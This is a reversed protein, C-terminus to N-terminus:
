SPATMARVRKFWETAMRMLSERHEILFSVHDGDAHYSTTIRKLHGSSALATGTFMDKFQSAYNYYEGVGGTYHFHLEVGRLVLDNLQEAATNRDPFERIDFGARLSEPVPPQKGMLRSLRSSWARGSVLKPLYNRSVRHLHFRRTRYGLGDVSFLGVIRDDRLSAYLSDDAGSCLGFLAVRQVGYESSLYNIAARIESAARDLSSGQAGVALSEGIGSLDFRLSQIGAGALHNALQRHMRFPGSSPLMGPTIMLAAFNKNGDELDSARYVGVLNANEGFVIAKEQNNGANPTYLTFMM